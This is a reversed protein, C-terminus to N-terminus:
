RTAMALLAGSSCLARWPCRRSSFWGMAGRGLYGLVDRFSISTAYSCASLSPVSLGMGRISDGLRSDIVYGGGAGRGSIFSLLIM